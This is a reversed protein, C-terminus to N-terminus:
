DGNLWGQITRESKGVTSAIEKNTKGQLRLQRAQTKLDPQNSLLRIGGSDASVEVPQAEQAARKLQIIEANQRTQETAINELQGLLTNLAHGIEGFNQSYDKAVPVPQEKVAAIEAALAAVQQTIKDLVSPAPKEGGARHMLMTYCFAVIPFGSHLFAWGGETPIYVRLAVLVSFVLAAVATIWFWRSKAKGEAWAIAGIYVMEFGFAGIIAFIWGEGSKDGGYLWKYVTYAQPAAAFLLPFYRADLLAGLPALREKATM